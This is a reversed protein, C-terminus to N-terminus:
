KEDAKGRKVIRLEMKEAPQFDAMDVRTFYSTPEATSQAGSDIATRVGGADERSPGSQALADRAAAEGRQTSTSTRTTETQENAALRQSEARPANREVYVFRTVVREREVPLEVIKAPAPDTTRVDATTSQAAAPAPTQTRAFLAFVSALLAVVACAAVPLPVRLEAALARRWLPARVNNERFEALLHERAGASQAPAEWARLLAGLEADDSFEEGDAAADRADPNFEASRARAAGDRRLRFPLLRTQRKEDSM